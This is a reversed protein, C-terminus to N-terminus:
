RAKTAPPGDEANLAPDQIKLNGPLRTGHTPDPLPILEGPRDRFPDLVQVTDPGSVCESRYEHEFREDDGTLDNRTVGGLMVLFEYCNNVALTHGTINVGGGLSYYPDGFDLAAIYPGNIGAEYYVEEVDWTDTQGIREHHYIVISMLVVEYPKNPDQVGLEGPYPWVGEYMLCDTSLRPDFLLSVLGNDDHHFTITPDPICEPPVDGASVPTLAAFLMALAIFPILFRTM